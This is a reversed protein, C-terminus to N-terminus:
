GRRRVASAVIGLAAAGAGLCLSNPEPVASIAGTAGTAGLQTQWVLFDAGDVDGDADADGDMADAGTPTGFGAKWLTLDDGDVTGDSDFDGAIGGGGTEDIRVPNPNDIGQDSVVSYTVDDIFAIGRRWADQQERLFSQSIAFANFPHLADAPRSFTFQGIPVGNVDGEFWAEGLVADFKLTLDINFATDYPVNIAGSNNGNIQLVFRPGGVFGIGASINGRSFDNATPSAPLNYYGLTIRQDNEYGLDNIIMKGKIVVEQSHNLEGGLNTDAVGGYDFWNFEGGFEGAGAGGASNTTTLGFHNTVINGNEVLTRTGGFGDQVVETDAPNDMTVPKPRVVDNNVFTDFRTGTGIDFTETVSVQAVAPASVMFAGVLAGFGCLLPLLVRAGSAKCAM